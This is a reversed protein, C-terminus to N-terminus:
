YILVWDLSFYKEVFEELFGGLIEKPLIMEMEEFQNLFTPLIGEEERMKHVERLWTEHARIEKWTPKLMKLFIWFDKLINM